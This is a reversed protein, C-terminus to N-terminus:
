KHFLFQHGNLKVKARLQLRSFPDKEAIKLIYSSIAKKDYM